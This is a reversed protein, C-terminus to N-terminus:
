QPLPGSVSNSVTTGPKPQALPDTAALTINGQGDLSSTCLYHTAAAPDKGPIVNFKVQVNGIYNGSADPTAVSTASGLRAYPSFGAFPGVFCSVVILKVEARLNTFRLPVTFTFDEAAAAEYGALIALVSMALARRFTKM